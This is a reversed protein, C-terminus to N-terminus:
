KGYQVNKGDSYQMVTSLNDYVWAASGHCSWCYPYPNYATGAPPYNPTGSTRYTPVHTFTTCAGTYSPNIPNWIVQSVTANAYNWIPGYGKSHTFTPLRIASFLGICVCLIVIAVWGASHRVAAGWARILGRITM